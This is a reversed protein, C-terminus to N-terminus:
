FFFTELDESEMQKEKLSGSRKRVEQFLFLFFLGQKDEKDKNNPPPLPPAFYFCRSMKHVPSSCSLWSQDWLLVPWGPTVWSRPSGVCLQGAIGLMELCSPPSGRLDWQLGTFPSESPCPDESFLDKTKWARRLLPCNLSERDNSLNKERGGWDKERWFWDSTMSFDREKQPPALFCFCINNRRM